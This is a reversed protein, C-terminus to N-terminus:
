EEGINKVVWIIEKSYIKGAIRWTLVNRRRIGTKSCRGYRMPIRERIRQSSRTCEKFKEKRGIHRVRSYIRELM